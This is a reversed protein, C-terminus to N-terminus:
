RSAPVTVSALVRARAGLAGVVVLGLLGGGILGLMVGPTTYGMVSLAIFAAVALVLFAILCGVMACLWGRVLEIRRQRALVVVRLGFVAAVQCCAIALVGWTIGPVVLLAVEPFVASVSAAEAPLVWVQILVSTVLVVVLVASTAFFSGRSM